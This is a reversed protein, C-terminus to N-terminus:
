IYHERNRQWVVERGGFYHVKPETVPLFSGSWDSCDDAELFSIQDM